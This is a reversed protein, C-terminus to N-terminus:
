NINLNYPYTIKVPVAKGNHKGVTWSKAHRKIQYIVQKDIAKNISNNIWAQKISGDTEIIFFVEGYNDSIPKTSLEDFNIESLFKSIDHKCSPMEEVKTYVRRNLVFDLYYKTSDNDYNPTFAFTSGGIFCTLLLLLIHKM